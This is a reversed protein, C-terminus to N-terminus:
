FGINKQHYHPLGLDGYIELPIWFAGSAVVGRRFTSGDQSLGGDGARAQLLVFLHPYILLSQTYLLLGVDNLM